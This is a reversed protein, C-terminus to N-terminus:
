HACECLDEYKNLLWSFQRGIFLRYHPGLRFPKLNLGPLHKKIVEWRKTSASFFVYLEQVISFFNVTAHSIKAADNVVLNLSHAFCPVFFARPNIDSIRKQLGVHKGRMNAGNDYGQGRMDHFNLNLSQFLEIVFQCFAEGTSDSIPYFAIFSENIKVKKTNNDLTVYRLVVSIQETHSADPTCDLIVSFYKSTRIMELITSKVKSSLLDILENQIQSGLYHPMRELHKQSKEVRNVHERMVPDFTSIMEIAKLFNGNDHIFLQKSSGQFALCQRSLYKIVAVIRVLVDYWYKKETELLRLHKNNITTKSKLMKNLNFWTQLNTNHSIGTEHRKLALSLHQCNSFGKSDSFSNFLKGFIKCCFCFVSNKSKSYVLWERVTQEGNSLQRIFYKDSFKRGNENVPYNHEKLQVPERKVLIRSIESTILEPWLGPDDSIVMINHGELEPRETDPQDETESEENSHSLASVEEKEFHEELSSQSTSASPSIADAVFDQHTNITSSEDHQLFRSLSNAMKEREQQKMKKKDFNPVLRNLEKKLIRFYIL